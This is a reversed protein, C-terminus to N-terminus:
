KGGVSAATAASPFTPTFTLSALLLRVLFYSPFLSIHNISDIQRSLDLLRIVVNAHTHVREKEKEMGLSFDAAAFTSAGSQRLM